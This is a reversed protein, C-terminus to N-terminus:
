PSKSSPKDRQQREWEAVLDAPLGATGPPAPPLMEPRIGAPMTASQQAIQRLREWGATVETPLGHERAGDILLGLYRASPIGEVGPSDSVYAYGEVSRGDALRKSSRASAAVVPRSFSTDAM